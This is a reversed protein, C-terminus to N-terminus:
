QGSFTDMLLIVSVESSRSESRKYTSWVEPPMGTAM